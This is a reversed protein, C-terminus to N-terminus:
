SVSLDMQSCCKSKDEVKHKHKAQFVYVHHLHCVSSQQIAM